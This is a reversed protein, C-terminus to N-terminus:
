SKGPEPDDPKLKESEIYGPRGRVQLFIKGIYEGLLGILLFQISSFFLVVIMLSTWGPVTAGSIIHVYLAWMVLCFAAVISLLGLVIGYRLPTISTATMGDLALRIM